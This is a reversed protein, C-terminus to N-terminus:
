ESRKLADLDTRTADRRTRTDTHDRRKGDGMVVAARGEDEPLTM